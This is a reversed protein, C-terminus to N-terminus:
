GYLKRYQKGLLNLYNAPWQSARPAPTFTGAKGLVGQGRLIYKDGNTILALRVQSPNEKGGCRSTWGSIVEAVNNSDLDRVILAGTTFAATGTGKCNTPLNPDTMVRLTRPDRDLDALHVVRLTRRNGGAADISTVVLNRGNKDNWAWAEVISGGPGRNAKRLQAAADSPSLQKLGDPTRGTFANAAAGATPATTPALTQDADTGRGSVLAVVVILLVVLAAAAGLLLVRPEPLKVQPLLSALRDPLDSRDLPEAPADAPAKRPARQYDTSARTPPAPSTGVPVPGSFTAFIDDGVPPMSETRAARPDSGLTRQPPPPTPPVVAVRRIVPKPPPPPEAPEPPPEEPLPQAIPRTYEPPIFDVAARETPPYSTPDQPEPEPPRTWWPGQEDDM